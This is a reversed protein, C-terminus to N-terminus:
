ANAPPQWHSTIKMVKRDYSLIGNVEEEIDSVQTYVAGALGGAVSAAISENLLKLYDANLKEADTYKHYGYVREVSSHGEVRLSYGGYESIVYIRGHKDRTGKIKRFYNHRSLYDGGNQDFWGSAQDILRTSDKERALLTMEKADFQGWGENFLVWTCISPVNKLYDITGTMENMWQKRGEEDSRSLMRYHRATDKVHSLLHPFLTPLYTLLPKSYDSGGSVMDQWVLMGLRDCHYYWRASEIKVHKRMMNFGLSKMKQIDFMLAQDSPATM